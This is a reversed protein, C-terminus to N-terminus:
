PRYKKLQQMCYKYYNPNDKKVSSYMPFYRIIIRCNRPWPRLTTRNKTTINTVKYKRLFQDLCLQEKHISPHSIMFNAYVDLVTQNVRVEGNRLSTSRANDLNCNVFKHFPHHVLKQQLLEHCCEQASIDRQSVCSLM